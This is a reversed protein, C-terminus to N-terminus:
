PQVEADPEPGPGAVPQHGPEVPAQAPGDAKGAREDLQGGEPEADEEPPGGTDARDHEGQGDTGEDLDGQAAEAHDPRGLLDPGRGGVGDAQGGLSATWGYAGAALLLTGGLVYVARIGVADALVGGLGLSALRSGNWLVDFFAFARGRVEAPVEAQLTSQYAVMGTSTGVGYAALAVGAVVPQGVAALTLDVGGRLVFPGFLWRRDSARIRKRLLLPGAAAGVGIASLLAGFGSPGVELWEAALVVLLGGTAGASLAALVQVVALRALLPHRRVTAVGAGVRSWGGAGPTADAPTRGATSGRLLAASLVYSAANVAFAPGVGTLAILGGAAPALVVQAVVAATWLATNADVLEDGEVVDPVLSSAAPNFLVTGTSLGFAVAYALAVSSHSVALAAALVARALDAAVMVQRRPYRDVVLGAVPGLVLVPLVEFAVTGAVGLGSGTLRFVLVVLAVTNFADGARSVAHALFLRRLEPRRRVLSLM